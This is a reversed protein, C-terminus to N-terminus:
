VATIKGSTDYLPIIKENTNLVKGEEEKKNEEKKRELHNIWEIHEHMLETAEEVSKCAKDLYKDLDVPKDKGKYDKTLVTDFYDISFQGKKDDNFLYFWELESHHLYTKWFFLKHRKYYRYGWICRQLFYFKEGLNNEKELIRYQAKGTGYIKAEM